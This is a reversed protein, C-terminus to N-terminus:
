ILLLGGMPNIKLQGTKGAIPQTIGTYPRDETVKARIRIATGGRLPNGHQEEEKLLIVSENTVLKMM